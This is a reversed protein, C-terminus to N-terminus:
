TSFSVDRAGPISAKCTPIRCERDGAPLHASGMQPIQPLLSVGGPVPGPEMSVASSPTVRGGGGPSDEASCDKLGKRGVGDVAEGKGVEGPSELVPM